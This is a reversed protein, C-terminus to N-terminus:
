ASLPRWTHAYRPSTIGTELEMERKL